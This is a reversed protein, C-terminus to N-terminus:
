YLPCEAFAGDGNGIVTVAVKRQRIETLVRCLVQYLLRQRHVTRRAKKRVSHKLCEVFFSIEITYLIFGISFRIQFYFTMWLVRIFMSGAVNELVLQKGHMCTPPISRRQLDQLFFCRRCIREFATGFSDDM